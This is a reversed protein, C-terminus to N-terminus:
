GDQSTTVDCRTVSGGGVTQRRRRRNDRRQKEDDASVPQQTAVEVEGRAVAEWRGPGGGRKDM